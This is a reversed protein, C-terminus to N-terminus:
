TRPKMRGMRMAAERMMHGAEMCDQKEQDDDPTFTDTDDEDMYRDTLDAMQNLAEGMNTPNGAMQQIDIPNTNNDDPQGGADGNEPPPNQEGPVDPALDQESIKDLIARARSKSM